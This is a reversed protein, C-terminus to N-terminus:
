VGKVRVRSQDTLVNAKIKEMAVMENASDAELM